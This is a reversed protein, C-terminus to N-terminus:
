SFLINDTGATFEVIKFGEVSSDDITYTLGEGIEINFTDPFKLIVIGSGGNGGTRNQNISVGGGGGGTNIEADRTSRTTSDTADGGGGLGGNAAASNNGGGGGGGGARYTATGTISSEVGDGGKGAKGSVTGGDEGAEGAGGGGGAPQVGTENYGRGGDYGQLPTAEGGLFPSIFGAGGGGSGGDHYRNPIDDDGYSENYVLGHGGGISEITAFVSNSGSKDETNANNSGAGGAGVTVEYITGVVAKFTDEASSGGGSPEGIVSSRYGGAGGGGGMQQGGAGGGAIVLYQVEVVGGLPVWVGALESYGEYVQRETNFRIMGNVAGETRQATTGAPILASGTQTDKYVALDPTRSLKRTKSM